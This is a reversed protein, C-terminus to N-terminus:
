NLTVIYCSKSKEITHHANKAILEAGFRERLFNCVEDNSLNYPANLHRLKMNLWVDDQAALHPLIRFHGYKEYFRKTVPSTAFNPTVITISAGRPIKAGLDSLLLNARFDLFEDQKKLANGYINAFSILFYATIVAVICSIYHTIKQLHPPASIFHSINAIIIIAVLANFGYFARPEFLPKQLVLYLGYSALFGLALFIIGCIRRNIIFLVCNLAILWIFATSKLDGFITTAYTAFNEWVGLIFALNLPLMKDSTYAVIYESVPRMIALKYIATAILLNLACVGLFIASDKLNQSHTLNQPNQSNTSNLNQSFLAFYLSLIIYTANAAQYTMLMLLLCVVSVACFIRRQNQFLFPVIAFFLAMGMTLADFKYSLNQLFHPSLGLPLSALVGLLDFKGRILYLLIMSSAVVFCVGFIHPLPSLDMTGKGFTLANTLIFETIYRDYYNGRYDSVARYLDDAYYIDGRILAFLAIAYLVIGYILANTLNQSNVFDRVIQCMECWALKYKEMKTNVRM